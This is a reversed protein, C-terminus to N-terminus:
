IHDIITALFSQKLDQEGIHTTLFLYFNKFIIRVITKQHTLGKIVVQKFSSNEEVLQKKLLDKHSNLVSILVIVNFTLFDKISTRKDEEIFNMARNLNRYCIEALHTLPLSQLFKSANFDPNKELIEKFKVLNREESSVKSVSKERHVLKSDLDDKNPM